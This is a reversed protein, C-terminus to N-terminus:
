EKKFLGFCDSYCYKNGEYPLLLEGYISALRNRQEEQNESYRNGSNIFDDLLKVYNRDPIWQQKRINDSDLRISIDAASQSFEGNSDIFCFNRGKSDLFLREEQQRERLPYRYQAIGSLWWFDDYSPINTSLSLVKEIVFHEMDAFKESPKLETNRHIRPISNIAALFDQDLLQELDHTSFKKGNVMNEYGPKTFVATEHKSQLGLAIKFGELNYQMLAINASTPEFNRHRLVRGALQIISRLSSPEVIAWDFDYDRGVEIVPTAVVIFIVHKVSINKLHYRIVSNKEILNTLQYNDKRKLMNNLHKEQESRLLLVQQSHYTTLRIAIEKNESSFNELLYRSLKVCDDIRTMRILGFSIQRGDNDNQAHRSHQQKIEESIKKFYSREAENEEIKKDNQLELKVIEAKRRVPKGILKKIRQEIFQQHYKAYCDSDSQANITELQTNFEDIWACGIASKLQRSEAFLQWGKQYANFYGRALDPTITASSIMVKRGLMGACHILRSIAIMSNKAEFDDIEDIVLDSSMLRLSPLIYSGGRLCDTAPIIYDITCVLIPTYLLKTCQKNKLVTTMEQSFKTHDVDIGFKLEDKFLEEASESGTNDGDEKSENQEKDYLKKVASSGIIVAIDAESLDLREKYEQGTQLTLTRLGLVLTFRLEERCVSLARMIKANALTKGCGTSAINVAFFGYSQESHDSLFDQQWHNIQKVAKDQWAFHNDGSNSPMKIRHTRPLESEVAPLIDAIKKAYKSVYYLHEDLKQKFKKSKKDTNAYLKIQSQWRDGKAGESSYQHDGLMLCLRAHYLILQWLKKETIEKIKPLLSKLMVIETKVKEMWDKAEALLKKSFVFCMSRDQEQQKERKNYGWEEDIQKLFNTIEEANKYKNKDKIWPLFHHSIILWAIMAALPAHQFNEFFRENKEKKSELDLYRIINDEKYGDALFNDIWEHDSKHQVIATLILFSIWEHRLPDKEKSCKKLKKQFFDSAKGIDHFLAALATLNKIVPLYHWNNEWETNIIPQTTTNVPVCGEQNFKKRNGIIWVLEMRSRSRLWYCSVATNKSAKQQLLTKVASLGEHTITTQWTFDGIRNAFADLVRRTKNIAKKQCQSIFIVMM